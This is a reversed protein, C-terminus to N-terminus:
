YHAVACTEMAVLCHPQSALFGLVKRTLKKRFAVSEDVRADHLQFGQKALDIGIVHVQEM